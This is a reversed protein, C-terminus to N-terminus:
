NSGALPLNSNFIDVVAKWSGDAQRRYIIVYKGSDAKTDGEPGITMEFCGIGYAIDGSAEVRTTNLALRLGGALAGAFWERIAGQGAIAPSNPPLLVADEAYFSSVLRDADRANVNRIMGEDMRRVTVAMERLESESATRVSM